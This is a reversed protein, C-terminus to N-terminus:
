RGDREIILYTIAPRIRKGGECGLVAKAVNANFVEDQQASSGIELENTYSCISQIVRLAGSVASEEHRNTHGTKIVIPLCARGWWWDYCPDDYVQRYREPHGTAKGVIQSM